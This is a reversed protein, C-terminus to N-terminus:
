ISMSCRGSGAGSCSCTRAAAGASRPQGDIVGTWSFRYRCAAHGATLVVWEVQEIKYVEDKITLFTREIAATVEDLGRYSGDSFWYTADEAIMQGVRGIDRRNNAEEYARMFANLEVALDSM